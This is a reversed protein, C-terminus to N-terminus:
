AKRLAVVPTQASAACYWRMAVSKSLRPEGASMTSATGVGGRKLRGSVAKWSPGMRDAAARVCARNFLGTLWSPWAAM